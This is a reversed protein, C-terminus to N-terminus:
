VTELVGSIGDGATDADIYLNQAQYTNLGVNNTFSYGSSTKAMVYIVGALTARVMGALGLYINGTNGAGAHTIPSPYVNIKNAAVVDTAADLVFGSVTNAANVTSLLGTTIRVPTGPTTVTVSGLPQLNSLPLYAM